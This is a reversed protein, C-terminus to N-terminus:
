ELGKAKVMMYAGMARDLPDNPCFKLEPDSECAPILGAEYAAEVWKIGWWDLSVDTFIGQPDPPVYDAGHMMRLFFVSGEVRTHEQLPCYILPDTGCGDTFGESWLATSWKAFWEHLPVDAFIQEAPQVPMFDAGHVGREVFVASEARTMIQEPCYMLPDISCGAVYGQQYLIEVYDHAWHDFPVDAFTPMEGIFEFPGIDQGAGQPRPNGDFDNLVDSLIMGTDIAPSNQRLRFDGAAPDLFLPDVDWLDHSPSPNVCQYDIKYCTSPQGDSRFALNYDIEQGSRNGTVSITHYPQDYFINNKV